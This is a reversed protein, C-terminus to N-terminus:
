RLPPITWAEYQIKIQFEHMTQHIHSIWRDPIWPCPQTDELIPRRIGAWLQYQRILIEIAQGLPTAARLHRLLMLIQQTEMESKLNCM